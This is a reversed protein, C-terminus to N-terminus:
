SGTRLPAREMGEDVSAADRVSFRGGRCALIASCATRLTSEYQVRTGQVRVSSRGGKFNFVVRSGYKVEANNNLEDSLASERADSRLSCHKDSSLYIEM